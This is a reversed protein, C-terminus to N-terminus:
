SSMESGLNCSAYTCPFYEAPQSLYRDDSYNKTTIDSVVLRVNFRQFSVTFLFQFSFDHECHIM